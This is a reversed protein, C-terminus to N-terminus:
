VQEPFVRNARDSPYEVLSGLADAFAHFRRLAHLLVQLRRRRAVFLNKSLRPTLCLLDQALGPLLALREHRASLLRCRLLLLDEEGLRPRSQARLSLLRTLLQSLLDGFDRDVRRRADDTLFKIGRSLGAQDLFGQGLRRTAPRAARFRYCSSTALQFH